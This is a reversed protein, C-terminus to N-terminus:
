HLSGDVAYGEIFTSGTMGPGELMYGWMNRVLNLARSPSDAIMHAQLELGAIFPCIADGAEPAPAGFPTWRGALSASISEIQAASQTLNSLVAWVNGDQPALSTTENDRYM